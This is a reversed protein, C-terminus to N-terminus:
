CAARCFDENEIVVKGFGEANVMNDFFRLIADRRTLLSGIEEESLYDKLSATLTAPDLFRLRLYTKASIRRTPGQAASVMSTPVCSSSTLDSPAV